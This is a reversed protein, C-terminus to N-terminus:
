RAALYEEVVKKLIRATGEPPFLETNLILDYITLDNIDIKYFRMFRERERRERELTRRRAEDLSLGDRRGIRRFRAEDPASLFIRLDALDGAMWGSLLGDLVVGGREAEVRTREDVLRDFEEDGEAMKTFELLSLGRERAMERFMVGASFYRLGFAEALRKAQTSKGTGHLGSVTIVLRGVRGRSRAAM